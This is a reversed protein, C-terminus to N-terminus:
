SFIEFNTSCCSNKRWNQIECIPVIMRLTPVVVKKNFQRSFSRIKKRKGNKKEKSWKLYRLQTDCVIFFSWGKPSTGRFSVSCSRLLKTADLVKAWARRSPLCIMLLILLTLVWMTFFNALKLDCSIYFPSRENVNEPRRDQFYAFYYAYFVRLHSVLKQM